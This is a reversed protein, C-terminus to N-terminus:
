GENVVRVLVRYRGAKVFEDVAEVTVPCLGAGAGDDDDKGDHHEEQSQLPLEDIAQRFAADLGLAYMM